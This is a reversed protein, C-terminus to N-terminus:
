RVNSWPIVQRKPAQETKPKQEDLDTGSSMLANMVQLDGGYFENLILKIQQERRKANLIYTTASDTQMYPKAEDFHWGGDRMATQFQNLNAFRLGILGDLYNITYETVRACAAADNTPAVLGGLAPSKNEQIM